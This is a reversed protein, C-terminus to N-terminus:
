LGEGGMKNIRCDGLEHTLKSITQEHTHIRNGHEWLLLGFLVTLFFFIAVLYTLIVKIIM